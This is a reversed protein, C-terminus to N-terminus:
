SFSERPETLPNPLLPEPSGRYGTFGSGSGSDPRSQRKHASNAGSGPLFTERERERERERVCECVCVCVCVCLHTPSSVQEIEKQVSDFEAKFNKNEEEAKDQLVGV